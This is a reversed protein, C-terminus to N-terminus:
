GSVSSRRRRLEDRYLIAAEYHELRVMRNMHRLLTEDTAAHLLRKYRGTRPKGPTFTITPAPLYQSM